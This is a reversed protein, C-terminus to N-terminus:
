TSSILPLDWIVWFVFIWKLACISRLSFHFSGNDAVGDDFVFARDFFWWFVKLHFHFYPLLFELTAHFMKYSCVQASQSHYNVLLYRHRSAVLLRVEPPLARPLRLFLSPEIFKCLPEWLFSGICFIPAIMDFGNHLHIRTANSSSFSVQPLKLLGTLGLHFRFHFHFHLNRLLDLPPLPFGFHHYSWHHRHDYHGLIM